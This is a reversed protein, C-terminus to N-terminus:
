ARLIEFDGTTVPDETHQLTKFRHRIGGANLVLVAATFGQVPWSGLFALHCYPRQKNQGYHIITVFTVLQQIEETVAQVKWFLPWRIYRVCAIANM